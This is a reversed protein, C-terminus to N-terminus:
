SGTSLDSLAGHEFVIGHEALIQVRLRNPGGYRLAVTIAAGKKVIRPGSPSRGDPNLAVEYTAQFPPMRAFASRAQRIVDLASAPSPRSAVVAAVVIAAVALAVAGALLPRRLRAPRARRQLRIRHRAPDDDTQAFEELLRARLADAFEPRPEVPGDLEKLLTVVPDRESV